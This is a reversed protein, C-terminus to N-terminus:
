LMAAAVSDIPDALMVGGSVHSAVSAEITAPITPGM